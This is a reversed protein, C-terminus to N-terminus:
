DQEPFELEWILQWLILTHDDSGSLVRQGDGTMAVATVKGTHGTLTRLCQGSALDWLKLTHDYWSRGEDSVARQGEGTVAVAYVSETHGTLTRLSFLIYFFLNDSHRRLTRLCPPKIEVSGLLAAFRGPYAQLSARATDPDSREAHVYATLEALTEAANQPNNGCNELRRLVERDDIEGARWQLLGLNYVAQPHTPDQEV